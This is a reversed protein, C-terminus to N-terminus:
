NLCLCKGVQPDYNVHLDPHNKELGDDLITVVIGRGTIGEKWAAQVNMDLGGGRNLYWMNHWYPDNLTILQASVSRKVRKKALQQEARVVEPDATLPKHHEECPEASRKVVNPHEFHFWDGVIQFM